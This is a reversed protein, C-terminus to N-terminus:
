IVLDIKSRIKKKAGSSSYGIEGGLDQDQSAGNGEKENTNKAGKPDEEKGEKGKQDEKGKERKREEFKRKKLVGWVRGSVPSLHAAGNLRSFDEM